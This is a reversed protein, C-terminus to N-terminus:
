RWKGLDLMCLFTLYTWPGTIFPLRVNSLIKYRYSSPFLNLINHSIDGVLRRRQLFQGVSTLNLSKIGVITSAHNKSKNVKNKNTKSLLRMPSQHLKVQSRGSRLKLVRRKGKWSPVGWYLLNQSGKLFLFNWDDYILYTFGKGIKPLVTM